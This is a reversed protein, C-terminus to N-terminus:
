DSAGRKAAVDAFQKPTGSLKHCEAGHEDDDKYYWGATQNSAAQGATLADDRRQATAAFAAYQDVSSKLVNFFSPFDSVNNIKMRQYNSWEKANATPIWQCSYVDDSADRCELPHDQDAGTNIAADRFSVWWIRTGNSMTGAYRVAPAEPDNMYTLGEVDHAPAIYSYAENVSMSAPDLCPSHSM